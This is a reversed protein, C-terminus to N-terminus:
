PTNRIPPIGARGQEAAPKIEKVEVPQQNIDRMPLNGISMGALTLTSTFSRFTDTSPGFPFSSKSNGLRVEATTAPAWILTLRSPSSASALANCPNLRAIKFLM